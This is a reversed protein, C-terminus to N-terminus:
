FSADAVTPPEGCDVADGTGLCLSQATYEPAGHTESLAWWAAAYDHAREKSAESRQWLQVAVVTRMRHLALESEPSDGWSSVVELADNLYAIAKEDRDSIFVFRAYDMLLVPDQPDIRSLHREALRKWVGRRGRHIADEILIQSAVMQHPGAVDAMEDLCTRQEIHLNGISALDDLLREHGCPFEAPTSALAAVALFPVM